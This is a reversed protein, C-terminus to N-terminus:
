DIKVDIVKHEVEKKPVSVYLVGNKLEAKIKEIECNDPLLLRTNYSSYNRSSWEEDEGKKEAKHEGQIVLFDDEVSVKVDEKSLGPMDFRMKLEKDDEWMDWPARIEGAPRNSGPITMVDDFLRDMTDLMQRMTRVPSLPDLLGFPSIEIASRRNKKEVETGKKQDVRVDVAGEKEDAMAKPRM